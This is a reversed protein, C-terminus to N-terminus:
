KAGSAPFTDMSARVMQKVLEVTIILCRRQAALGQIELVEDLLVLMVMLYLLTSTIEVGPAKTHCAQQLHEDRHTYTRELYSYYTLLGTLFNWPIKTEQLLL